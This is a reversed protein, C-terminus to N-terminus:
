VWGRCALPHRLTSQVTVHVLAGCLNPLRREGCPARETALLKVVAELASSSPNESYDGIVNCLADFRASGLMSPDQQQMQCLRETLTALAAQGLILQRDSLSPDPEPERTAATVPELALKPQVSAAAAAEEKRTALTAALRRSSAAAYVVGPTLRTLCM